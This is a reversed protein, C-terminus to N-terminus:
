FSHINLTITNKKSIEPDSEFLFKWKVEEPDNNRAQIPPCRTCRWKGSTTNLEESSNGLFNNCFYFIFFKLYIIKRKLKWILYFLNFYNMAKFLLIFFLFNFFTLFFVLKKFIEFINFFHFNLFNAFIQFLEFFTGIPWQPTALKNRHRVCIWIDIIVIAWIGCAAIKGM